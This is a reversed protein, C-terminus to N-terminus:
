EKHVFEHLEKHGSTHKVELEARGNKKLDFLIGAGSSFDFHSIDGNVSGIYSLGFHIFKITGGIEENNSYGWDAIGIEYRDKAVEEIEQGTDCVVNRGEITAEITM